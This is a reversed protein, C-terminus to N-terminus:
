VLRGEAYPYWTGHSILIDDWPSDGGLALMRAIVYSARVKDYKLADVFKRRAHAMCYILLIDAHSAFLSEYVGYGDCQLIGAYGELM